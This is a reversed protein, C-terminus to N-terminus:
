AIAHPEVTKESPVSGMAADTIENLAKASYPLAQGADVEDDGGQIAARWLRRREDEVQMRLLADSVVDGADGYTGSAVQGEVYRELEPSLNIQMPM